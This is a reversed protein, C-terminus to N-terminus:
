PLLWSAATFLFSPLYLCCVQLCAYSTHLHASLSSSFSPVSLISAIFVISSSSSLLLLNLNLDKIYFSGLNSFYAVQFALLYTFLCLRSRVLPLGFRHLIM